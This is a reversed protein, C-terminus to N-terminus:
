VQVQNQRLFAILKNMPIASFFNCNGVVKESFRMVGDTDHAGAFKMVPNRGIYAHIEEDSLKRWYIECTDTSPCMQDKMSNYVALGTVFTYSSGSLEQLMEFAEELHEPKEMVKGKSVVFADAAIILGPHQRAVAKAKAESLMRAMKLPDPDRIAKEDIHSPITEYKLGLLDLARKRILSQSALIIRMFSEGMWVPKTEFNLLNLNVPIKDELCAFDGSSSGRLNQLLAM